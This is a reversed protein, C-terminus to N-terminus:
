LVDEEKPKVLLLGVLSLTYGLFLLLLSAFILYILFAIFFPLSVLVFLWFYRRTATYSWYPDKNTEVPFLKKRLYLALPISLLAFFFVFGVSYIILKSPLPLKFFPYLVLSALFILTLLGLYAYFLQKARKKYLEKV